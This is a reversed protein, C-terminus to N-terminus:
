ADGEEVAVSLVYRFEKTTDKTVSSNANRLFMTGSASATFLGVETITRGSLELSNLRYEFTANEWEGAGLENDPHASIPYRTGTNCELLETGLATDNDTQGTTGTGFGMHTIGTTTDGRILERVLTRGSKVIM